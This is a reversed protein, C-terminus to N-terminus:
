NKIFKKVSIRNASDIVKAFYLGNNLMSIDESHIRNNGPRYLGCSKGNVDTIEIQLM